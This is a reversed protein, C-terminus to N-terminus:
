EGVTVLVRIGLRAESDRQDHLQVFPGGLLWADLVLCLGVVCRATRGLEDGRRVHRLRRRRLGQRHADRRHTSALHRAATAHRAAARRRQLRPLAHRGRAPRRLLLLAVALLHAGACLRPPVAGHWRALHADADGPRRAPRARGHAGRQPARRAALRQDAAVAAGRSACRLLLRGHAGLPVHRGLAVTDRHARRGRLVGPPVVRPRAGRPRLVLCRLHRPDGQSAEGKARSSSTSACRTALASCLHEEAHAAGLTATRRAHHRLCPACRSRTRRRAM